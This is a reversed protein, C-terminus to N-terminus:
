RKVLPVWDLRLAAVLVETCDAATRPHATAFIEQHSNLLEGDVLTGARDVVYAHVGVAERAPGAGVYEPLIAYDTEPPHAAIWASFEAASERWMRSQDMHVEGTISV